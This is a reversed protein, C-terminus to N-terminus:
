PPTYGPCALGMGKFFPVYERVQGGVLPHLRFKFCWWKHLDCMITDELEAQAAQAAEYAVTRLAQAFAPPIGPQLGERFFVDQRSSFMLDCIGDLAKSWAAHSYEEVSKYYLHSVEFQEEFSVPPLVTLQNVDQMELLGKSAVRAAYLEGFTVHYCQGTHLSSGHQINEMRVLGGALVPEEKGVAAGWGRVVLVLFGTM